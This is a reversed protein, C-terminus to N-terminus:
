GSRLCSCRGATLLVAELALLLLPLAWPHPPAAPTAQTRCSPCLGPSLAPGLSELSTCVSSLTPGGSPVGFRGATPLLTGLQQRWWFIAGPLGRGPPAEAATKHPAGFGLAERCPAQARCTASGHPSRAPLSWAAAPPTPGLTPQLAARLLPTRLVGGVDRPDSCRLGQNPWQATPCGSALDGKVSLGCVGAPSGRQGWLRHSCARGESM